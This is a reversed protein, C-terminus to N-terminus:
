GSSEATADRQASPRDRDAQMTAVDTELRDLRRMTEEVPDYELARDLDELVRWLNRLRDRITM